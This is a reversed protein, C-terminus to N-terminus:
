KLRSFFGKEKSASEDKPAADEKARKADADALRKREKESREEAEKAAKEAREEECKFRDAEAGVFEGGVPVNSGPPVEGTKYPEGTAPDVPVEPLTNDVVPDDSKGPKVYDPDGPKPKAQGPPQEPKTM